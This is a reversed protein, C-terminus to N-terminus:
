HSRRMDTDGAWDADVWGWLENPSKEGQVFAQSIDVHSTFMDLQTPLSLITRFSSAAPM